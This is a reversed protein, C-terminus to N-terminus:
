GERKLARQRKRTLTESKARATRKRDRPAGDATRNKPKMPTRDYRM